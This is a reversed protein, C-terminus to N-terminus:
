PLPRGSEEQSAVWEEMAAREEDTLNAEDYLAFRAERDHPIMPTRGMLADILENRQEAAVGAYDRSTADGSRRPEGDPRPASRSPQSESRM